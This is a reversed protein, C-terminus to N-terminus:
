RDWVEHPVPLGELDAANLPGDPTIGNSELMLM